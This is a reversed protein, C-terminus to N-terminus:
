VRAEAPHATAAVIASSEASRRSWASPAQAPITTARATTRSRASWTSGTRSIPRSISTIPTAGMRAGSNPPQTAAAIPQRAIKQASASTPTSAKRTTANARGSM